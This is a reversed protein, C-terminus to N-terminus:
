TKYIKRKVNRRWLTGYSNTVFWISKHADLFLEMSENRSKRSLIKWVKRHKTTIIWAFMEIKTIDASKMLSILEDDYFAQSISGCAVLSKQRMLSVLFRILSSIIFWWCMYTAVYKNNNNASRLTKYIFLYIEFLAWSENFMKLTWLSFYNLIFNKLMWSSFAFIFKLWRIWLLM